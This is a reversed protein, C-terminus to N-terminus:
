QAILVFGPSVCIPFSVLRNKNLTQNVPVNQIFSANANKQEQGEQM